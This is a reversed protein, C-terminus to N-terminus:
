REVKERRWVVGSGTMYGWQKYPHGDKGSKYKCLVGVVGAQAPRVWAWAGPHVEAWDCAADLSSFVESHCTRM